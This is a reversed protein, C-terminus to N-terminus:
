PIRYRTGSRVRQTLQYTQDASAIFDIVEPRLSRRSITVEVRDHLEILDPAPRGHSLLVEFLKDFGSGEREM